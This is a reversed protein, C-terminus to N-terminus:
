YRAQGIDLRDFKGQANQHFKFFVKFIGWSGAQFKGYVEKGDNEVKDISLFKEKGLANSFFDNFDVKTGDDTMAPNATFFTYWAKDGAQLAEVAKKVTDNTIKSLDMTQQHETSSSSTRTQGCLTVCLSVCLSVLLWRNNM